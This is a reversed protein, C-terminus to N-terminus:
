VLIHATVEMLSMAGATIADLSLIGLGRVHCYVDSVQMHKRAKVDRISVPLIERRKKDAISGTQNARNPIIVSSQSNNISISGDQDHYVMIDNPCTGRDPTDATRYQQDLLHLMREDRYLNATRYRVSVIAPHNNNNM